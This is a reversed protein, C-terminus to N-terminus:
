QNRRRQRDRECVACVVVTLQGKKRYYAGHPKLKDHKKKCYRIM